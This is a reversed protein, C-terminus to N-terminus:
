SGQAQNREGMRRRPREAKYQTLELIEDQDDESLRRFRELLLDEAKKESAAQLPREVEYGALQLLYDADVRFYRALARVTTESPRHKGILNGHVTTVPVKAYEALQHYSELGRVQMAAKVWDIWPQWMARLM